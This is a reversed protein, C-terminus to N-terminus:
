GKSQLMIVNSSNFTLLDINFASSSSPKSIGVGMWSFAIGTIREPTSTSPIAWVPVPFVAAYRKGRNMFSTFASPTSGRATIKTGVRSSEM